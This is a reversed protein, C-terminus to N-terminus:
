NARRTLLTRSDDRPTAPGRVPDPSAEGYWLREGRALADRVPQQVTARALQTRTDIPGLPRAEGYFVPEGRDRAADLEARVEARTKQSQLEQGFWGTAEQAALGLSAFGLASAILLTKM